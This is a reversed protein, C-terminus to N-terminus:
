DQTESPEDKRCMRLAVELNHRFDMLEADLKKFVRLLEYDDEREILSRIQDTMTQANGVLEYLKRYM